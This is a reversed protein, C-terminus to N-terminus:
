ILSSDQNSTKKTPQQELVDARRQLFQEFQLSPTNAPREGLWQEIENMEKDDSPEKQPLLLSLAISM